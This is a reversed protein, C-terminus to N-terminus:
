AAGGPERPNSLEQAPMSVISLCACTFKAFGHFGIYYM